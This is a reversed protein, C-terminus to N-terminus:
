KAYPHFTSFLGMVRSLNEKITLIIHHIIYFFILFKCAKGNSSLKTCQPARPPNLTSCDFVTLNNENYRGYYCKLAIGLIELYLISKIWLAIKKKSSPIMFTLCLVVLITM